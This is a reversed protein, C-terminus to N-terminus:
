RPGKPFWLLFRSVRRQHEAYEPRRALARREAMPISGLQFLALIVVFGLSGLAASGPEAAVGAIFLGLWFTCEGLYNPHRSFRWLGINCVGGGGGPRDRFARLQADSVTELLAGAFAVAVGVLDLASLPRDSRMASFLPISGLFTCVTPFYHIGSFSVLWYAKKTKARLDVYRWDEHHLGQWGRLWNYTLRAGWFWVVAFLLVRRSVVGAGAYPGFFLWAAIVMPAVSWYPDYFSSNGSVASFAFVAITAVTDALAARALTSWGPVAAFTAGAAAIAVM